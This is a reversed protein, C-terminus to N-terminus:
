SFTLRGLLRIVQKRLVDPCAHNSSILLLTWCAAVLSSPQVKLGRRVQRRAEFWDAAEVAELATKFHFRAHASPNDKLIQIYKAHLLNSAAVARKPQWVREGAHDRVIVLPEAIFGLKTCLSLQAFYDWGQRAPLSEDFRVNDRMIVDRRVIVFPPGWGAYRQEFVRTRFSDFRFSPCWTTETSENKIRRFGCTVAGINRGASGTLMNVQKTTKEPLWEDDTDLFAIFEGCSVDVGGNRASPAGGNAKRIVRVRFNEAANETAFREAVAATDDMSGDDVVILEIPRYTQRHVSELARGILTARNYAPVIVSVLGPEYETSTSMAPESVTSAGLQQQACAYAAPEM